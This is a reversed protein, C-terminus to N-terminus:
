FRWKNAKKKNHFDCVNKLMDKISGSELWFKQEKQVNEVESMCIGNERDELKSTSAKIIM